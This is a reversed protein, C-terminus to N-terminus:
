TVLKDVAADVNTQIANDSATLIANVSAAKNAAVVYWVLDSGTQRPGALAAIAWDRQTTTPTPLDILGQAKITCALSIKDLFDTWGPESQLKSLEAYTAM